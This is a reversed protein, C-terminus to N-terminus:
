SIWGPQEIPLIIAPKPPGARVWVAAEALEDSLHGLINACADADKGTAVPLRAALRVLDGIVEGVTAIARMDAEDSV